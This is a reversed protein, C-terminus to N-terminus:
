TRRHAAATPDGELVHQERHADHELDRHPNQREGLEANRRRALERLVPAVRVQDQRDDRHGQRAGVRDRQQQRHQRQDHEVFTRDEEGGHEVPPRTARGGSGSRRGGCERPWM